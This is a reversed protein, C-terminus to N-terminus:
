FFGFYGQLLMALLSLSVRSHFLTRNSLSIVGLGLFEWCVMEPDINEQKFCQTGAFEVIPIVYVRPICHVVISLQRLMSGVSQMKTKSEASGVLM